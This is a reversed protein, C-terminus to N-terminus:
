PISAVDATAGPLLFSSPYDARMTALLARAEESRGLRVLARIQLADREEALVGRPFQAAHAATSALAADPEGRVIADRAADLLTREERLSAVGPPEIPRIAGPVARLTPSSAVTVRSESPATVTSVSPVVKAEPEQRAVAPVVPAPEHTAPPTPEVSPAHSVARVTALTAGGVALVVLAKTGWSALTGLASGALSAATPAGLMLGPMRANLRAALRSRSGEPVSLRGKSAEVLAKVDPPLMDFGNSM